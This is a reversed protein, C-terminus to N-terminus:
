KSNCDVTITNGEPKITSWRISCTDISPKAQMEYKIADTFGTIDFDSPQEHRIKFMCRNQRCVVSEAHSNYNGLVDLAFYEMEVDNEGFNNDNSLENAEYDFVDETLRYSKSTFSNLDTIAFLPEGDKGYEYFEVWWAGFHVLDTPERAFIFPSGETEHRQMILQYDDWTLRTNKDFAFFPPPVNDKTLSILRRQEDTPEESRKESSSTQHRHKTTPLDGEEPRRTSPKFSAQPHAVPSDTETRPPQTRSIVSALALLLAIILALTINNLIFGNSTDNLYAFASGWAVMNHFTPKM